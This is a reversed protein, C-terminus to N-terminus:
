FGVEWRPVSSCLMATGHDCAYLVISVSDYDRTALDSGDIIHTHLFPTFSTTQSCSVLLIRGLSCNNGYFGNACIELVAFEASPQSCTCM